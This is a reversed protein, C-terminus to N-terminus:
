VRTSVFMRLRCVCRSGSKSATSLSSVTLLDSTHHVKNLRKEPRTMIEVGCREEASFTAFLGFKLTAYGTLIQPRADFRNM